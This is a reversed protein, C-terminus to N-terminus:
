NFLLLAEFVYSMEDSLYRYWAQLQFIPRDSLVIEYVHTKINKASTVADHPKQVSSM